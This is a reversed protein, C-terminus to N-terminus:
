RADDIFLEYVLALIFPWIFLLTLQEYPVAASGIHLEGIYESSFAFIQSGRLIAVLEISMSLPGTFFAFLAVKPLLVRLGRPHALTLTVFLVGLLAVLMWVFAYSVILVVFLYLFTLCLATLFCMVPLVHRKLSQGGRGDDFFFEYLVLLYLTHVLSFLISEFSIGVWQWSSVVVGYWAGTMQGTAGILILMLGGVGLSGLLSSLALPREYLLVITPIVCLFLISVSLSWGLILAVLAVLSTYVTLTLLQWLSSRSEMAYMTVLALERQPWRKNM